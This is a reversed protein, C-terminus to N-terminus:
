SGPKLASWYKGNLGLMIQDHYDELCGRIPMFRSRKQCNGVLQRASESAAASMGSESGIAREIFQDSQEKTVDDSQPLENSIRVTVRAISLNDANVEAWPKGIREIGASADAIEDPTQPATGDDLPMPLLAVMRELGVSVSQLQRQELVDENVYFRVSTQSRLSAIGLATAPLAVTKGDTTLGTLKLHKLDEALVQYSTHSAPAPRKPQLCIASFEADCIGDHCILQYPEGVPLAALVQPSASATRAHGLALIVGLLALVTIRIM